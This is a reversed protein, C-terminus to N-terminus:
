NIDIGKDLLDQKDNLFPLRRDVTNNKVSLNLYKSATKYDKMASHVKALGYNVPWEDPYKKANFKFVELAENQKGEKLLGNAYKYIEFVTGIELAGQMLKEAEEIKGMKLLINSKTKLNSFVRVFSISYNAWDLAQVFNTDNRLCWEAAEQPGMYNIMHKNQIEQQLSKLTTAKVNIQIPISIRKNGWKLALEVSEDRLSDFQYSLRETSEDDQWKTQVSAVVDEKNYYFSGWSEFNSSFQCHATGNSEIIMHLGYSGAKIFTGGVIADTSFSVVTNENAGARWPLVRVDEDESPAPSFRIVEGWVQRNNVAPRSYVVKIDTIGVRQSISAKPSLMPTTATLTQQAKLSSTSLLLVSWLLITNIKM